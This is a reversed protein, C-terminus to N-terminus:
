KGGKQKDLFGKTGEIFNKATMLVTEAEKKAPVYRAFKVLDCAEMFDRMLDKYESPLKGSSTVSDLFEQTTMEPAHLDFVSEIYRRICDSIKVYYEKMDAGTDLMNKADQLDGIATEYPTKPPVRTLYRFLAVLGAFLLATIAIGSGVLKYNIIFPTIPPKIDKVDKIPVGRPLISEIEIDIQNLGKAKWDDANIDKFRVSAIPTKFKGTEYATIAYWNIIRTGGFFSKEIKSGSDKIEFDGAKDDKFRPMEVEIGKPVGVIVKFLIRQGILIVRRDVTTRISPEAPGAFAAGCIFAALFLAISIRAFIRM